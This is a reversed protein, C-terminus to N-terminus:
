NNKGSSPTTMQINMCPEARPSPRSGRIMGALSGSNYIDYQSRIFEVGTQQPSGVSWGEQEEHLRQQAIGSDM